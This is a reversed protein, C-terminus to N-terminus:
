RARDGAHDLTAPAMLPEVENGRRARSPASSCCTRSRRAARADARERGRLRARAPAGDVRRAHPRCRPRRAPRARLTVVRDVWRSAAFGRRSAPTASACCCGAATPCRPACARWCRTRSPSASTTCCTSSSSRTSRPSPPPECTPASSTPATASRTAPARSTARAAARHRHRARRAAGRGLREALPGPAGRAGAARLLSALLGQGCGIDLVRTRPAILGHALLHGFVPDWRLKGRAFHWAFRGSASTRRARRRRGARALRASAAGREHTRVQARSEAHASARGGAADGRRPRRDRSASSCRRCCTWRRGARGDRDRAANGDHLLLIDGAALGRPWGRAAGTASRRRVTDFGRRTWSVLQLDLRQLVPALFPNRLGAPARFFRPASAPSRPWRRRRPPSRARWPRAARAALLPALPSRQPEPRQPRARVIERCLAPHARASSPSASSPPAHAPAADLLDLVAPTVEPDPGDDITIAVERRAAAAAPLRRGTAASGARARGSAAPPSCSRPQRRGRRAGLALRPCPAAAAGARSIAPSARRRRLAPWARRLRRRAAHTPLRSCATAPTTTVARNEWAGAARIPTAAASCRPRSAGPLALRGARRRPRDGAAGPHQSIALLGFSAVTTLNALLLSALTDADVEAASRAPPRLLARLELRDRGDAAPRRPAPHRARRRRLTLAPSCSWRRRPSRCRSARGAPAASRLQLALLCRLVALAGLAAQWEAERLYRAYIADLEAKITSSARAPCTPSRRRPRARRRAARRREAQLNLLARWPRTADGAVCCRTSRPARAAHRRAIARARAAGAHARGAVDAIFPALRAAPLPGDATAEALRARSRRRMPCRPAAARRRRRAAAAAAGALRLGAARRRRRARRPARRGGRRRRARRAREAGLRRGAHRRRRRRPRRAADADLRSTPRARGPEAVGARRALAVARRRARRRALLALASSPGARRAAADRRAARM